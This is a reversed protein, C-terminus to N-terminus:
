RYSRTPVPSGVWEILSESGVGAAKARLLADDASFGRKVRLYRGWVAGARNSSACHILVPGRTEGLETIFGELWEDRGESPFTMHVYTMGLADVVAAEDFEVRDVMESDRRLNIVKVVGRNALERLGDPTPQASFFFRGDRSLNPAGEVGEVPAAIHVPAQNLTQSCGGLGCVVAFAFALAVAIKM